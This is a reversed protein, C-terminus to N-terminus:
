SWHLLIFPLQLQAVQKELVSSVSQLHVILLALGSSGFCSEVACATCEMKYKKYALCFKM